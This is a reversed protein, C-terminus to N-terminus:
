VKLSPGPRSGMYPLRSAAEAALAERTGLQWPPSRGRRHGSCPVPVPGPDGAQTGALGSEAKAQTRSRAKPVRLRTPRPSLYVPPSQPPSGSSLPTHALQRCRPNLGGRNRLAPASGPRPPGFDLGTARPATRGARAQVRCATGGAGGCGSPRAGRLPPPPGRLSPGPRTSPHVLPERAPGVVRRGEAAKGRRSPGGPEAPRPPAHPPGPLLVPLLGPQPPPRTLAASWRGRPKSGAPAGRLVRVPVRVPVPAAGSAGRGPRPRAVIASLSAPPLSVPGRPSHLACTRRSLRPPAPRAPSPHPAGPGAGRLERASRPFTPAEARDQGMPPALTLAVAPDPIWPARPPRGTVHEAGAPTRVSRRPGCGGGPCETRGRRLTAGRAPGPALGPSLRGPHEDGARRAPVWASVRYLARRPPPGPM